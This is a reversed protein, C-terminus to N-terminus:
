QKIEGGFAAFIKQSLSMKYVPIRCRSVEPMM